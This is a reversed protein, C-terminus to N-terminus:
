QVMPRFGAEYPPKVFESIWPIPIYVHSGSPPTQDSMMNVPYDFGVINYPIPKYSVNVQVQHSAVFPAAWMADKWQSFTPFQDLDVEQALVDPPITPLTPELPASDPSAGYDKPQYWPKPGSKCLAIQSSLWEPEPALMM